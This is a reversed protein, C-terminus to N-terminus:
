PNLGSTHGPSRASRDRNEITVQLTPESNGRSGASSDAFLPGGLKEVSPTRREESSTRSCKATSCEQKPKKREAARAQRAAAIKLELRQQEELAAQATRERLIEYATERDVATEYKGYFPSAMIVAQREIDTLVGIRSRPPIVM